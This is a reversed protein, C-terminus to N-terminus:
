ARKMVTFAFMGNFKTKETVSEVTLEKEGFHLDRNIQIIIKVRLM